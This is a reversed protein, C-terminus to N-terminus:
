TDRRRKPLLLPSGKRCIDRKKKKIDIGEQAAAAEAGRGKLLRSGHHGEGGESAFWHQRGVNEFM